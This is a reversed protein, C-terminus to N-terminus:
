HLTQEESNATAIKVRMAHLLTETLKAPVMSVTYKLHRSPCYYPPSQSFLHSFPLLQTKELTGPGKIIDYCM